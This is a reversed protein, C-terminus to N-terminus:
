KRRTTGRKRLTRRAQASGRSFAAARGRPRHALARTRRSWAQRRELLAFRSEVSLRLRRPVRLRKLMRADITATVALAAVTLTLSALPLFRTGWTAVIAAGLIPGLASGSNMAVTLASAGVDTRWPTHRMSWNLLAAVLAAWGASLLVQAGVASWPTAIALLGWAGILSALAVRVTNVVNRVLLPSVSLTAVVGVVGGLAFLAPIVTVGLGVQRTLFPVFYTWSVSLGVTAVFAVVLVKTFMHRSPIDGRAHLAKAGPPYRGKSPLTVALAATLLVGLVALAWFPTQWSITNGLLTVLPTGVVGAVASGVMVRTVTRARLHPAFMSTATPAVLAWFLAHAAASVIRGGTLQVLTSASAAFAVGITWVGLTLPLMLKRSVKTTFLTLPTATAVVALAFATVVLGISAIPVSLGAAIATSLAVISSENTATAFAAVALTALAFKARLPSLRLSENSGPGPDAEAEDIVIASAAGIIPMSATTPEDVPGLYETPPPAFPDTEASLPLEVTDDSELRDAPAFIAFM